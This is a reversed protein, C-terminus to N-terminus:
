ARARAKEKSEVRQERKFFAKVVSPMRWIDDECIEDRSVWPANHLFFAGHPWGFFRRYLRVKAAMRKNTLVGMVIPIKEGADRSMEDSCKKAYEIMLRAYDSKRHEPHVWNFLEELHHDHTYWHKTLLIFMMARVNGPAGIVALIGGRRNFAHGFMERVRDIDLRRMGGEAHMLRFLALLEPEDASTALRITSNTQTM